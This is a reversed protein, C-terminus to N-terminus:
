RTLSQQSIQISETSTPNKAFETVAQLNQTLLWIRKEHLDTVIDKKLLTETLLLANMLAVSLQSRFDSEDLLLVANCFNTIAVILPSTYDILLRSYIYGFTSASSLRSILRDHSSHSVVSNNRNLEHFGHISTLFASFEVINNDFTQKEHSAWLQMQLQEEYNKTRIADITLEINRAATM